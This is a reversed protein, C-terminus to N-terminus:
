VPGELHRPRWLQPVVGAATRLRARRANGPLKCLGARLRFGGHTRPHGARGFRDLEEVYTHASVTARGIRRGQNLFSATSSVKKSEAGTRSLSVNAILFGADSTHFSRVASRVSEHHRIRSSTLQVEGRGNVTPVVRVTLDSLPALTM